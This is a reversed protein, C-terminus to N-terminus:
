YLTFSINKENEVSKESSSRKMVKTSSSLPKSSLRGSCLLGSFQAVTKMNEFIHRGCSSIPPRKTCAPNFLSFLKRIKTRLLM